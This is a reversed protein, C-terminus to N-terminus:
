SKSSPSSSSVVFSCGHRGVECCLELLLLFCCAMQGEFTIWHHFNAPFRSLVLVMVRVPSGLGSAITRPMKGWLWLMGTGWAEQADRGTDEYYWCISTHFFPNSWFHSSHDDEACCPLLQTVLSLIPYSRRAKGLPWFSLPFTCAVVFTLIFCDADSIGFIYRKTSLHSKKGYSIKTPFCDSYTNDCRYMINKQVNQKM